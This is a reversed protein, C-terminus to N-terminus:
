FSYDWINLSEETSQEEDIIGPVLETVRTDGSVPDIYFRNLSGTYSRFVVVIEKEDSSSIDWYVPSGEEETASQLEPDRILCYHMVASLAQRDSIRKDGRAETVSFTDMLYGFRRGFGEASEFTYHAAAIRCGDAAPIIYVTQLLDPTEMGDGAASAEIRICRGASDLTYSDDRLIDHDLSLLESVADAIRQADQPNYTVELYIEPNEPDEYISVLCERDPESSRRFLAYDYDMEFGIADNRIHEYQVTEEMGELVIVAEFREGDRRGDQVAPEETSVPDTNRATEEPAAPPDSRGCGGLMAALLLLALAASIRSAPKKRIM